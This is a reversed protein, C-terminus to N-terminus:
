AMRGQTKAGLVAAGGNIGVALLIVMGIFVGNWLSPVGALVTGNRLIAIFAVGGLTRLVSGEGGLISTGGVVVSAIALMTIEGGTSAQVVGIRGLYAVAALGVLAGLIAYAGMRVAGVRIGALKAAEPNSGFAFVSRGFVTRMLVVHLAAYVVLVVILLTPVPGVSSHGSLWPVAPGAFLDRSHWLAFLVTQFIASTGLTAVMSPIKLKVSLMGNFLALCVGIAMATVLILYSPLSAGLMAAVFWSIVGVSFGTSVDIGGMLIILTLGGAILALDAANVIINVWNGSTLFQPSLLAFVAVEIVLLVPLMWKQVMQLARSLREQRIFSDDVGADAQTTQLTSM